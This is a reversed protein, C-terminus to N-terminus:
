GGAHHCGQSLGGPSVYMLKRYRGAHHCGQSLGGSSIYMLRM